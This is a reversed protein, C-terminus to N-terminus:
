TAGAGHRIKMYAEALDEIHTQNLSPMHRQLKEVFSAPFLSEHQHQQSDTSNKTMSDNKVLQKYIIDIACAFFCLTKVESDVVLAAYYECLSSSSSSSSSSWSMSSSPADNTGTVATHNGAFIRDGHRLTREREADSLHYSESLQILRTCFASLANLESQRSDLNGSSSVPQGVATNWANGGGFMVDDPIEEQEEEDAHEDDCANLFAEMDDDDDDDDDHGGNDGHDDDDKAENMDLNDDALTMGDESNANQHNHQAMADNSTNVFFTELAQVFGGYSYAKPGMRLVITKERTKKRHLASASPLNDSATTTMTSSSSSSLLEYTENSSGDPEMNNPIAFGYNLLLQVNSRAGYTVRLVQGPSIDGFARATLGKSDDFDYSLNKAVSSTTTTTTTTTPPATSKNQQQDQRQLTTPDSSSSSSPSTFGREHDCLDLLPVLTTRGATTTTTTRTTLTTGSQSGDFARSSVVAMAYDFSEFTITTNSHNPPAPSENIKSSNNDNNHNNIPEPETLQQEQQQPLWINRIKESDRRLFQRQQQVRHFLPSGGLLRQLRDDSWHRPLSERFIAPDPLSDLYPQWWCCSSPSSSSSSSLQLMLYAAVLCDQKSYFLGQETEDGDDDDNREILSLAAGLSQIWFLCSKSPLSLAPRKDNQEDELQNVIALQITTPSMLNGRPIQFVVDGNPIAKSAHPSLLLHRARTDMFLEPHVFGGESQRIWELLTNNSDNWSIGIPPASQTSAAAAAAAAPSSSFLSGDQSRPRGDNDGNDDHNWNCGHNM